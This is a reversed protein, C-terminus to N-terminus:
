AQIEQEAPIAFIREHKRLKVVSLLLEIEDKDVAKMLLLAAGYGLVGLLAQITWHIQLDSLVTVVGVMVAGAAFGKIVTLLNSHTFVEKPLTLTACVLLFYETLLTAFAAGIGGNGYKSQFLPIMVLNLGTNLLMALFAMVSLKRQKDFAFMLPLLVFDIYILLMGASFIRLLLVTPAFEKLGYFLSIIEDDFLVGGISIPIGALIVVDLSKQVTRAISDSKDSWLRSFVPFVATSFISPLFMVIDFFRYAGGYWGVVAAPTLFSLMVADIRYYIVGFLSHLFYPVSERAIRKVEGFDVKPLASMIKPVFRTSIFFNLFTSVAMIIGVAVVPAGLLLASVGILTLSVREAVNGVVTYKMVEHGQFCRHLVDTMMEWSLSIAFIAILLNVDAPYGAFWLFAGALFLTIVWTFIRLAASDVFLRPTRDLDRAVHKTIYFHGGFEVFIRLVAAVSLALFLKGYAESGLYRPLFLMLVFSSTWTILQSGMMVATNKTVSQAIERNM